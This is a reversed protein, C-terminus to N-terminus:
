SQKALSLTLEGNSLVIEVAPDSLVMRGGPQLLRGAIQVPNARAPRSVVVGDAGNEIALQVSNIRNSAGTLAIFHEPAQGHPRGIQVRRGAVISAEGGPWTLRLGGDAVADGVRETHEPARPIPPAAQRVRVTVEADTPAAISSNDVYAVVIEGVGQELDAEEDFLVRIIPDGVTQAQLESLSQRIITDLGASLRGQLPRLRDYDARSLYVRYENWALLRGQVDRETSREMVACVARGVRFPDVTVAAPRRLMGRLRGLLGEEELRAFEVRFRDPEVATIAM